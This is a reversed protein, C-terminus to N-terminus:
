ADDGDYRGDDGTAVAVFQHPTMVAVGGHSKGLFLTEAELARRL